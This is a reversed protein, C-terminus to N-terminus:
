IVIEILGQYMCSLILILITGKMKENAEFRSESENDDAGYM